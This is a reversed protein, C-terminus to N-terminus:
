QFRGTASRCQSKWAEGACRVAYGLPDDWAKRMGAIRAARKAEDRWSRRVGEAVLRNRALRQENTV